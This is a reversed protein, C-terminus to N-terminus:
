VLAFVGGLLAGEEVGLRVLILGLLNEVVLRVLLGERGLHVLRVLHALAERDLWCLVLLLHGQFLHV